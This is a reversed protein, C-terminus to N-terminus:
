QSDREFVWQQMHRDLEALLAPGESVQEPTLKGTVLGPMRRNWFGYFEEACRKCLAWLM